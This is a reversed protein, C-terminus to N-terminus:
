VTDPDFRRVYWKVKAVVFKILQSNITLGIQNTHCVYM